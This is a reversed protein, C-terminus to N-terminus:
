PSRAAKPHLMFTTGALYAFVANRCLVAGFGICFYREGEEGDLLAKDLEETKAALWGRMFVVWEECAPTGFNDIARAIVLSLLHICITLLAL